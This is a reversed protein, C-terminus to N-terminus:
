VQLNLDNVGRPLICCSVGAVQFWIEKPPHSHGMIVYKLNPYFKKQEAVYEIVRDNPRVTWYRRLGDIMRSVLQRKLFGAGRKQSRFKESRDKGWMPIDGHTILISDGVLLADPDQTVNCEHNGRVVFSAERSKVKDRLLMFTQAASPLDKYKCNAIDVVDGNLVVPYPSGAIAAVLTGISMTPNVGYLHIDNIIRIYM